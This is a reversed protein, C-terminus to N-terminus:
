QRCDIQTGACAIFREGGAAPNSLAWAHISALDRVDVWSGAAGLLDGQQGPTTHSMFSAMSTNFAAPSSVDHIVPGFVMPPCVTVLDFTTKNKDVFDWAAREAMVKSTRYKHMGTADRGKEEVERPSTTNWDTQKKKKKPLHLFQNGWTNILSILENHNIAQACYLIRLFLRVEDFLKNSGKDHIISGLTSTIVVRKVNPAHKQISELVGITGKVAPQILEQPDDAMITVPSATHEVADVGVVAKDFAGEEQMDAVIIFTFKDKGHDKEFLNQLYEGKSKSRVTGVVHYGQDLLTKCVWVAIFGSAGTVLVKAPASVAPMPSTTTLQPRRTRYGWLQSSYFGHAHPDLGNTYESPQPINLIILDTSIRWPWAGEKQRISGNQYGLDSSEKQGELRAQSIRLHKLGRM